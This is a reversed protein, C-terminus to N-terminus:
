AAIAPALAKPTTTCFEAAMVYIDELSGLSLESNMSSFVRETGTERFHSAFQSLWTNMPAISLSMAEISMIMSTPERPFAAGNAFVEFYAGALPHRSALYRM